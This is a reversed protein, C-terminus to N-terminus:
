AKGHAGCQQKGGGGTGHERPACCAQPEGSIRRTSPVESTEVRTISSSSVAPHEAQEEQAMGEVM